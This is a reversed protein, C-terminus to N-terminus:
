IKDWGLCSDGGWNEPNMNVKFMINTVHLLFQRNCNAKNDFFINIYNQWNHLVMCNEWHLKGQSSTLWLGSLDPLRRDIRCMLDTTSSYIKIHYRRPMIATFLVLFKLVDGFARFFSFWIFYSKGKALTTLHGGLSVKWIRYLLYVYSYVSHM